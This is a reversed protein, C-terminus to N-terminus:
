ELTTPNPYVRWKAEALVYNRPVFTNEWARSDKSDNRNDGMVFYSDEPVYYPGYSKPLMPERLYASEDLQEGNVFVVGEVIEVVDGPLGIVRKIYLEKPNDPFKFIIIDFREPDNFWYATRMGIVRDGPNITNQMSGSPVLSNVVICQTLFMTIFFAAVFAILWERLIAGAKRSKTEGDNKTRKKGYQPEYEDSQKM